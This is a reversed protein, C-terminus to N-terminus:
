RDRRAAFASVPRCVFSMKICDSRCHFTDVGSILFLTFNKKFFCFMGSITGRHYAEIDVDLNGVTLIDVEINSVGVSMGGGGNLSPWRLM